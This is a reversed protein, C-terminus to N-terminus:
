VAAERSARERRLREILEPRMEVDAPSVLELGLGDLLSAPLAVKALAMPNANGIALRLSSNVHSCVDALLRADLGLRDISTGKPIM